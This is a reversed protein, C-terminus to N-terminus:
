KTMHRQCRGCFFDGESGDMPNVYSARGGCPCDTARPTTLPLGDAGMNIEAQIAPLAALSLAALFGTLCAYEIIKNM